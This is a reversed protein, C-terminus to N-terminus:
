KENTLYKNFLYDAEEFGDQKFRTLMYNHQISYDDDKVPNMCVLFGYVNRHRMLLNLRENQIKALYPLFGSKAIEWEQETLYSMVIEKCFLRKNKLSVKDLNIDNIRMTKFYLPNILVRKYNM